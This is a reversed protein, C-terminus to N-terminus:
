AAGRSLVIFPVYTTEGTLENWVPHEIEVRKYEEADQLIAPEDNLLINFPIELKSLLETLSSITFNCDASEWKSVMGQSVKYKKAFEKQTLGLEHRKNIIAAAIAGQILAANLKHEPIDDFLTSVPVNNTNM